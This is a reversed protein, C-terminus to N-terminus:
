VNSSAINYRAAANLSGHGAAANRRGSVFCAVFDAENMAPAQITVLGVDTKASLVAGKWDFHDNWRDSRPHFLRVIAGTTPRRGAINPGKDRNCHLCALALNDADTACGHQRAIIHDIHFQWHTDRLRCNSIGPVAGHGRGFWDYLIPHARSM